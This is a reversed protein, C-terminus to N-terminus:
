SEREPLREGLLPLASGLWFGHVLHDRRPYGTDPHILINLGQRNLMLWPVLLAFIEPSFLLQYMAQTHPGVPLDHWRGAQVVFNRTVQDRVAAAVDRTSHPDYYVHAHYDRVTGIDQQPRPVWGPAASPPASSM